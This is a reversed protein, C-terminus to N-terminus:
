DNQSKDQIKYAMIMIIMLVIVCLAAVISILAIQSNGVFPNAYNIQTANFVVSAVALALFLYFVYKM